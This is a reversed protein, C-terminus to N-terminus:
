NGPYTGRLNDLAERPPPPVCNKCFFNDSRPGLFCRCCLDWTLTELPVRVSNKLVDMAFMALGPDRFFEEGVFEDRISAYLTLKPYLLLADRLDQFPESGNSYATKVAAYFCTLFHKDEFECGKEPRATWNIFSLLKTAHTIINPTLIEVIRTCLTDLTFYDAITFLAISTSIITDDNELLTFLDNPVKEIYIFHIVWNVQVPDLDHLEISQDISEKFTNSQLAKRFFGCRTSLINRHLAWTRDGCKVTVDSFLGTSLLEEDSSTIISNNRRRTGMMTAM